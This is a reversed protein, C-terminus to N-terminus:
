PSPQGTSIMYTLLVTAVSSKIVPFLTTSFFHAHTCIFFPLNPENESLVPYL